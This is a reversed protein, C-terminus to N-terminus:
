RYFLGWIKERDHRGGVEFSCSHLAITRWYGEVEDIVRVVIDVGHTHILGNVVEWDGLSGLAVFNVM